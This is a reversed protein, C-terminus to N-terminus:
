AAVFDCIQITAGTAVDVECEFPTEFPVTGTSANRGQDGLRKYRVSFLTVFYTGFTNTLRFHFDDYDDAFAKVRRGDGDKMHGSFTGSFLQTGLSVGVPELGDSYILECNNQVQWKFERFNGYLVGGARMARFNNPVDIVRRPDEAAIPSGTGASTNSAALPKGGLLALTCKAFDNQTHTAEFTNAVCGPYLQYRDTTFDSQDREYASSIFTSGNRLHRGKITITAGAAANTVTQYALVVENDTKSVVFAWDDDWSQSHGGIEIWTKAVVNTFLVGSSASDVIKNGSAVFQITTSSIALVTSWLSFLSDELTEAMAPGYTHDFALQGGGSASMRRSVGPTRGFANASRKDEVQGELAETALSLTRLAGADFVGWNDPDGATERRRRLFMKSLDGFAM